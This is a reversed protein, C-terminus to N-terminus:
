DLAQWKKYTKCGENLATTTRKDWFGGACEGKAGSEVIVVRRNIHPKRQGCWHACTCCKKASGVIEM